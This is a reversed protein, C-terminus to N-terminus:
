QSTSGAYAPIIGCPDRGLPTRRRAGRTHPSSGVAQFPQGAFEGHEGRIRPHDGAVGGRHLMGETSGAYAPIIRFLGVAPVYQFLAGRTHPSSGWQGIGITIPDVHEGRIRPHDRNAAGPDRAIRTSGAYAPIIRKRATTYGRGTPAGRTHPSSGARSAQTMKRSSHEGRIRPHDSARCGGGWGARTSGAYAPIIREHPPHRRPLVLAGRTHPSSGRIQHRRAGGLGHEGRIRPHDELKTLKYANRLTSGAYAPIIRPAASAAGRMHHAGRTHPSSGPVNEVPMNNGGHEGRIRPHDWHRSDRSTSRPTSGAYAPIIRRAERRQPAPPLAGRTHPSSGSM